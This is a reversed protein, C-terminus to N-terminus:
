AKTKADASDHLVLSDNWRSVGRGGNQGDGFDVMSILTGANRVIGIQDKEYDRVCQGVTLKRPSHKMRPGHKM